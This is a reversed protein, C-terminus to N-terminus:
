RCPGEAALRPGPSGARYGTRAVAQELVVLFAPDHREDVHRVNWLGSERVRQARAFRGLWSRSPPDIAPRGLNSLLAIGNAEIVSRESTPGAEDPVDVWLVRMAGILRSVAAELGAEHERVDRPASSGKAWTAAAKPDRGGALLAEGVNLRFVSGRHNGGVRDGTGTGPAPATAGV